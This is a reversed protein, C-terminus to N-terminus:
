IGVEFDNMVIMFTWADVPVLSPASFAVASSFVSSSICLDPLDPNLGSMIKYLLSMLAQRKHSCLLLSSVMEGACFACDIRSEIQSLYSAPSPISTAGLSEVNEKTM